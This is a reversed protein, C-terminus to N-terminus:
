FLNGTTTYIYAAWICGRSRVEVIKNERMLEFAEDFTVEIKEIEEDAEPTAEGQTLDEAIFYFNIGEEHVGNHHQSIQTWKEASLGVEERLERKAAQLPVEGQDKKGMPVGYTLGHNHRFEKTLIIKNDATIPLVLVGEPVELIERIQTEGDLFILTDQRVSIVGTNYVVKKDIREIVRSSM